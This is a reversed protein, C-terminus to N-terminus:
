GKRGDSLIEVLTEILLERDIPKPIFGNMGEEQARKKDEDLVNATMALIPVNSNVPDRMRRIAKVAEYGNMGPMQIDMLIVDYHGPLVSSLLSVAYKGDTAEEVEFGYMTLIASAIQRNIMIDDVILARKGTFDFTVQEKEPKKHMESTELVLTIFYELSKDDYIKLELNGGMLNIIQRTLSLELATDRINDSDLAKDNTVSELLRETNDVIKSQGQGKIRFEYLAGGNEEPSLQLLTVFVEGRDPIIDIVNFALVTVVQVLRRRDCMVNEDTIDRADLKITHRKIRAASYILTNLEAFFESLNLPEYSLVFSGAEIRSLEVVDNFLSLLQNGSEKIMRLYELRTAEDANDELALDSFGVIANLPTRIDHSLNTILSTKAESEEEAAKTRAMQLKFRHRIATFIEFLVVLAFIVVIIRMLSGTVLISKVDDIDTVGELGVQTLSFTWKDTSFFLLFFMLLWMIMTNGLREETDRTLAMRYYIMGSLCWISLIFYDEASLDMDLFTPSVVLAFIMFALITGVIGVMAKKVNGREEARKYACISIFGYVIAVSLTSIDTAWGIVVQGLFLIPLSVGVILTIAKTPIGASNTEAFRGPMIGDEAMIRVIDAASKMYGLICTSLACFFAMGVLISGFPGMHTRVNYLAPVDRPDNVIDISDVYEQWDYYGVPPTSSAILVVMIYIAMGFIIAAVAIAFLRGPSPAKKGRTNFATEFGVFLWPSLVAVSVVQIAKVKYGGTAFAPSFMDAPNSNMLIGIFLIVVCSVLLLVMIASIRYVVDDGRNVLFAGLVLIIACLIVEYVYIDRGAISYHLGRAFVGDMLFRSLMSFASSNAWLISIYALLMFWMSFFANDMGIVQRIYHYSSGEDKSSGSLYYYNYCFIIAVVAAIIIGLVSGLPGSMPLFSTGPMVFSGFGIICGLALSFIYWTSTNNNNDSQM